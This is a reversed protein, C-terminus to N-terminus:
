HKPALVRSLFEKQTAPDLKSDLALATRLSHESVERPIGLRWEAEGIIEGIVFRASGPHHRILWDLMEAVPPAIGYFVTGDDVNASGAVHLKRGQISRDLQQGTSFEDLV